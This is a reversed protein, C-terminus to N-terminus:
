QCFSHKRSARGHVCFRWIIRPLNLPHNRYRQVPLGLAELCQHSARPCKPATMGGAFTHQRAERYTANNAASCFRYDWPGRSAAHNRAHRGSIRRACMILATLFSMFVSTMNPQKKQAVATLGPSGRSLYFPLNSLMPPHAATVM